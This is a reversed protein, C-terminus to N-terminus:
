KRKRLDNLITPGKYIFWLFLATLGIGILLEIMASM